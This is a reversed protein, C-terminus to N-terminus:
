GLLLNLQTDFMGIIKTKIVEKIIEWTLGVIADYSADRTATVMEDLEDFAAHKLSEADDEVARIANYDLVSFVGNADDYVKGSSSSKLNVNSSYHGVPLSATSFEESKEAGSSLYISGITDASVPTDYKDYIVLHLDYTEATNGTNKIDVDIDINDGISYHPDSHVGTLDGGYSPPTKILVTCVDPESWTGKDDVVKLTPYYTGAVSWSHTPNQLVSDIVGNNDFDWAYTYPPMGGTASGHFQIPENINGYYPGGADATIPQSSQSVSPGSFTGSPYDYRIAMGMM